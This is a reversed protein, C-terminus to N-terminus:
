IMTHYNINTLCIRQASLEPLLMYPLGYLDIIAVELYCKAM